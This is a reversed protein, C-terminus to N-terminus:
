LNHRFKIYPITGTLEDINQNSEFQNESINKQAGFSITGQETFHWDVQFDLVSSRSYDGATEYSSFLESNLSAAFRSGRVGLAFSTSKIQQGLLSSYDSSIRGHGFEFGLQTKSTLNMVSSIGLQFGLLDADASENKGRNILSSQLFTNSIDDNEFINIHVSLLPFIKKGIIVENGLIPQSRKQLIVGNDLLNESLFFDDGDLTLDFQNNVVSYRAFDYNELGVSAPNSSSVFANPVKQMGYQHVPLSKGQAGVVGSICIMSFFISFIVHNKM